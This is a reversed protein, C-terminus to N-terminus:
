KNVIIKKTSNQNNNYIKVFYAGNALATLDLTNHGKILNVNSYVQEGVVNYIEVSTNADVTNINLVGNSPNPFILAMENSSLTKIGTSTVKSIMIDDIRVNIQDSSAAVTGQGSIAFYRTETASAIYDVSDKEWVGAQANPTISSYAKLVTTMSAADQATGTFIGSQGNVTLTGSTNAKRWYSIRYTEGMTVDVCPLNIFATYTGNPAGSITYFLAQAGSHKTGTSLGFPLGLGTWDLNLSGSDYSSEIGNTYSTTSLATPITNSLTFSMTDNAVSIDGAVAAWAKVVYINSASFNYPTAFVFVSSDGPAIPGAITTATAAVGNVSYNVPINSETTNGINKFVGAIVHTGMSCNHEGAITSTSTLVAVATTQINILSAGAPFITCTVGNLDGPSAGFGDGSIDATAIQNGTVGAGITVNVTFNYSAGSVIGGWNNDNNGWSIVQGVIPNLAEPGDPGPDAADSAFPNNPSSNPTIGAPFTLTLLDCYEQDANTLDLTFELDMTTGATYQTNCVLSGAIQTVGATKANSNTSVEAKKYPNRVTLSTQSNVALAFMVAMGTLYIKKM